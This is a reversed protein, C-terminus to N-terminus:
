GSGELSKDREDSAMGGGGDTQLLKFLAPVSEPTLLYYGRADCLICQYSNKNSLTYSVHLKM